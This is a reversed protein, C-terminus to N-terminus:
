YDQEIRSRDFVFDWKKGNLCDNHPDEESSARLCSKKFTSKKEVKNAM